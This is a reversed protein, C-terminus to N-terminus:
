QMGFRIGVLDMLNTKPGSDKTIPSALMFKNRFMPM